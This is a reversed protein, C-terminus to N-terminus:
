SELAERTRNALDEMSFPKQMFHLGEELVGHHAIVDATYGSMFLCKLEPYLTKIRAAMDRGNMKPMVIDTILLDIEHPHTEALKIAESPSVASLVQYGLKELMTKGMMLLIPEDEVLLVTENGGRIPKAEVSEGEAEPEELHRPLYIRFITGQGVESYVNIFGSNQKVIGYVMPLGLGTGKGVQKTTFFPDFINQLDRKNIGMGDDSVTLLVYEGPVLWPSREICDDERLVINKTEITIRGVDRIADRANSCLNALIQDIQTSDMKVPWLNKGPRWVLDIDEGVLRRLMKLMGEVTENLDLVKPAITQKRAFALLQKTLETSRKAAQQIETLSSYFPQSPDMTDLAMEAHGLIIGLMNNFDHAVGGALRGVSEMKQAQTLQSELKKQEEEAHKRKTIDVVIGEHRIVEGNEDFYARTSNSVWIESGDKCRVKFEFSEVHGQEMLIARYKERDRPNAYYQSAIDTISSVFDEPSEYHLIRAFAPNVDIFRGEPTSQFFGVVSNEFIRRYKEDSERLADKTLKLLDSKKELELIRKKLISIEEVFERRTKSQDIMTREQGRFHHQLKAGHTLITAM